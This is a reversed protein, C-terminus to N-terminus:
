ICDEDELEEGLNDLKEEADELLSMQRSNSDGDYDDIKQLAEDIGDEHKDLIDGCEGGMGFGYAMLVVAAKEGVQEAKRTVERDTPEEGGCALPLALLLGVAMTCIIARTFGM